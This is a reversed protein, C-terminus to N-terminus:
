RVQVDKYGADFLVGKFFTRYHGLYHSYFLISPTPILSLLVTTLPLMYFIELNQSVAVILTKKKKKGTLGLIELAQFTLNVNNGWFM